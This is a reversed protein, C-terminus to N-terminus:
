FFTELPDAAAAPGVLNCSFHMIKRAEIEVAKKGHGIQLLRSISELLSGIQLDIDAYIKCFHNGSLLVLFAEFVLSLFASISAWCKGFCTKRKLAAVIESNKLM